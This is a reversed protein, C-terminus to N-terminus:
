KTYERVRLPIDLDRALKRCEEIEQESIVNVLSFRVTRIFKKCEKAFEIIADFSKEGFSPRSLEVYRQPNPANLSISVTDTFGGIIKACSKNNILDGLGNTNIRIQIDYKSKIYNGAKVLNDLACLPEGYGCFAIEQFGSLDFGDIAAIIEEASPEREHWLTEASGLGEGNSRICFSCRCPCRNTINMYVKDGYTYIIDAM